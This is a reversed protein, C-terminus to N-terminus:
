KVLMVPCTCLVAVKYSTTGWGEGRGRGVPHSRMLILDVKNAAAYRVIEDAPGGIVVTGRVNIGKRTLQGAARALERRARGELQQYFSRLEEAPVHEIRAIVHLLTIRTLRDRALDSATSLASTNRRSLDIPVLIHRFV